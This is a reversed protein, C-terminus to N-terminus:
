NYYLCKLLNIMKLIRNDFNSLLLLQDLVKSVNNLLEKNYGCTKLIKNSFKNAILEYENNKSNETIKTLIETSLNLFLREYIHSFYILINTSKLINLSFENTEYKDWIYDIFKIIKETKCKSIDQIVQIFLKDTDSNTSELKILSLILKCYIEPSKEVSNNTASDGCDESLGCFGGPESCTTDSLNKIFQLTKEADSRQYSKTPANFEFNLTQLQKMQYSDILDLKIKSQLSKKYKEQVTECINNWHNIPKIFNEESTLCKEGVICDKTVITNNILAKVFQSYNNEDIVYDSNCNILQLLM